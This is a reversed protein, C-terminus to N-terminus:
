VHARGIEAVGAIGGVILAAAQKFSHGIGLRDIVTVPTLLGVLHGVLLILVGMHFLNSGLKMQNRRLFQSSQARWSYQAADFRLISGVVLVTVALYPYWGFFLQNLFDNMARGGQVHGTPSGQDEYRGRETVGHLARRRRQIDSSGIGM